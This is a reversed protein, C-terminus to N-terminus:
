SHAVIKSPSQRCGNTQTSVERLHTLCLSDVKAYRVCGRASCKRVMLRDHLKCLGHFVAHKECGELFCRVYGGHRKCLGGKVAFNPCGAEHRCSPRRRKRKGGPFTKRNNACM